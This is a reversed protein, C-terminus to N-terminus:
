IKSLHWGYKYRCPYIKLGEKQSAKKIAEEQSIYLEKPNNYRDVCLCQNEIFEIKEYEIPIYILFEELKSISSVYFYDLIEEIDLHSIYSYDRKIQKIIEQNSLIRKKISKLPKKIELRKM